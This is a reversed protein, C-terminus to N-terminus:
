RSRSARSLELRYHKLGWFGNSRTSARRAAPRPLGVAADPRIARPSRSRRLLVLADERCWRWTSPRRRTASRSPSRRRAPRARASAAAIPRATACCRRARRRRSRGSRTPMAPSSRRATSCRRARAHHGRRGRARDPREIREGDRRALSIHTVPAVWVHIFDVVSGDDTSILVASTGPRRRSSRATRSPSSAGAGRKRPAPEADVDRRHRDVGRSLLALRDRAARATGARAPPMTRAASGSSRRRTCRAAWRAARPLVAALMIVFRM